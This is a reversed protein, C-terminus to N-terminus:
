PKPNLTQESLKRQSGGWRLLDEPVHLFAPAAILAKPAHLCRIRSVVVIVM